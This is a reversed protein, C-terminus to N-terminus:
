NVCFSGFALQHELFQFHTTCARGWTAVPCPFQPAFEGNMVAYKVHFAIYVSLFFLVEAVLMRYMFTSPYQATISGTRVLRIM